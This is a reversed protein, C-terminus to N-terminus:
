WLAYHIMHPITDIFAINVLGERRGFLVDRQLEEFVARSLCFEGARSCADVGAEVLLVGPKWEAWISCKLVVCYGFIRKMMAFMVESRGAGKMIYARTAHSDTWLLINVDQFPSRGGSQVTRVEASLVEELAALERHAQEDWVTGAWAAAVAYSTDGWLLSRDHGDLRYGLGDRSADMMLRLGVQRAERRIPSGNFQRLMQLVWGQEDLMGKSLQATADWDGEPRICRYTERTFLRAPAVAMQTSILKGALKALQRFTADTPHALFQAALREMEEVKDGPVYFCMRVSDIVFGLFRLIHSPMLCSKLWSVSFGLREMDAIVADRVACAEAFTGRVSFLFDDLLHVLKKGEKRWKRVMCRTLKTFVACSNRWGQVLTRQQLLVEVSGDGFTQQVAAEQWLGEQKLLAVNEKSFIVLVGFLKRSEPTMLLADYGSDLDISFLWDGEETTLAVTKLSEYTVRWKEYSDNIVSGVVVLRHPPTAGPKPVLNVPVVNIVGEVAFEYSEERLRKILITQLAEDNDRAGRGNQCRLGMADPHQKVVYMDPVWALVEADPTPDLQLWAEYRGHLKGPKVGKETSKFEPANDEATTYQPGSPIIGEVMQLQARWWERLLHQSPHAHAGTVLGGPEDGDVARRQHDEILQRWEERQGQAESWAQEAHVAEPFKGMIIKGAAMWPEEMECTEQLWRKDDLVWGAKCLDNLALTGLVFSFGAVDHVTAEWAFVEGGVKCQLQLKDMPTVQEWGLQGALHTSVMCGKLTKLKGSLLCAYETDVVQLWPRSYQRVQVQVRRQLYQVEIRGRKGSGRGTTCVMGATAAGTIDMAGEVSSSSSCAEYSGVLEPGGQGPLEAAKLVATESSEEAAAKFALRSALIAANTGPFEDDRSTILVQQTQQKFRLADAATGPARGPKTWVTCVERGGSTATRAGGEEKKAGDVLSAGMGAAGGDATKQVGVGQAVRVMEHEREALGQSLINM